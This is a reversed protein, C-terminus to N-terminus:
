RQARALSEFLGEAHGEDVIIGVELLRLQRAEFGFGTFCDIAGVHGSPLLVFIEIQKLQWFGGFVILGDHGSKNRGDVDRAWSTSARSM